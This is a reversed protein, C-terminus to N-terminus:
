GALPQAGREALLKEISTAEASQSAAVQGAFTRVVPNTAHQAAYTLMGAGGQHHRLLLQLFRIDLASGTASRLESLEQGSAMGPMSTMPTGPSAMAAMAGGSADTMWGMYSGSGLLPQGWMGLWGQMQGIQVQQTSSVDFALSKVVPDSTGALAINAMQVAQQHHVVMDHAFGVDVSEAAPVALDAGAPRALTGIAFAIAVLAVAALATLARRQSRAGTAPAAV